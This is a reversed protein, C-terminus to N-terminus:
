ARLVAAGIMVFGSAIMSWWYAREIQDLLKVTRRRPGSSTRAPLGESLSPSPALRVKVASQAIDAM